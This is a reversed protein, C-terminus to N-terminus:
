FTCFCKQLFVNKCKKTIKADVGSTKLALVKKFLTEVLDPFPTSSKIDLESEKWAKTMVEKLKEKKDSFTWYEGHRGRQGEDLGQPQGYPVLWYKAGPSLYKALHSLYKPGAVDFIVYKFRGSSSREM